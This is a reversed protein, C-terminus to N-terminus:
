FNVRFGARVTLDDKLATGNLDQFVPVQVIAELIWRKSIYQLGPAIMLSTGGSNGDKVGGTENKDRHLLNAELVGYVFAPVGRGLERPWLRYQLSGDLRAEDALEFDNASTNLKYSAQADVQFDLTQYTVVVGGFPDRSGSGLQLTAPLRGLSDRDNDDGTPLEVGFFPAVRFNLGPGVRKFITYRAFLRADGIGSTNRSVRAGDPTTLDLEKHLFPLVGFLALDPTVGYGLVSAAGVVAVDRDAPGADDGKGTAIFQARFIFEGRAVPLATNFTEPAAHVPVTWAVAALGLWFIRSM